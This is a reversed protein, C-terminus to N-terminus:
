KVSLEICTSLNYAASKDNVLILLWHRSHSLLLNRAMGPGFSEHPCVQVKKKTILESDMKLQASKDCVLQLFNGKLHNDTFFSLARTILQFNCYQLIM